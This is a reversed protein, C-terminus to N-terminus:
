PGVPGMASRAVSSPELPQAESTPLFDLGTGAEGPATVHEATGSVGNWRVLMRRSDSPDAVALLIEASDSSGDPYFTIPPWDTPSTFGGFATSGPDEYAGTSTSSPSATSEAPEASPAGEPALRRVSEVRVLDSLSEALPATTLNPVFVGPQRLPEPEWQVRVIPIVIAAPSMSTFSPRSAQLRVRRGQQAAEARAFRLLGELRGVGEELPATRWLPALSLVAASGFLMLLSVVLLLELLSFAARSSKTAPSLPSM